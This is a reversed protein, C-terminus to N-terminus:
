ESKLLEDFACATYPHCSTSNRPAAILDTVAAAGATAAVVPVKELSKKPAAAAAKPLNLTLAVAVVAIAVAAVVAAQM